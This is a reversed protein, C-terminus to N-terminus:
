SGHSTAAEKRIDRVARNRIARNRIARYRIARYRVARTLCAQSRHLQRASLSLRSSLRARASPFGVTEADRFDAAGTYTDREREIYIYIHVCTYICM